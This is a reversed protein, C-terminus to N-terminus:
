NIFNRELWKEMDDVELKIVLRLNVDDYDADLLKMTRRNSKELRIVRRLRWQRVEFKWWYSLRKM